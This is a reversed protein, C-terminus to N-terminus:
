KWDTLSRKMEEVHTGHGLAATDAVKAQARLGVASARCSRALEQDGRAFMNMSTAFRNVTARSPGTLKRSASRFVSAHGYFAAASVDRAKADEELKVAAEKARTSLEQLAVMRGEEQEIAAEVARRTGGVSELPQQTAAVKTEGQARAVLAGGTSGALVMLGAWVAIRFLM